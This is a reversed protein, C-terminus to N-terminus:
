VRRGLSHRCQYRLLVFAAFPLRAGRSFLNDPPRRVLVGWADAHHLQKDSWTQFRFFMPRQEATRDQKGGLIDICM